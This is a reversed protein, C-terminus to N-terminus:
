SNVICIALRTGEEREVAAINTPDSFESMVANPEKFVKEIGYIVSDELSLAGTKAKSGWNTSVCDDILRKKLEKKLLSKYKLNKSDTYLKCLDKAKLNLVKSSLGSTEGTNWNKALVIESNGAFFVLFGFLLVGCVKNM